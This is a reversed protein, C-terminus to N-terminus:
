ARRGSRAVLRAGVERQRRPEDDVAGVLPRREQLPPRRAAIGEEPGDPLVPRAVVRDALHRRALMREHRAIVDRQGRRAGGEADLVESVPTQSFVMPRAVSHSEDADREQGVAAGVGSSANATRVARSYAANM